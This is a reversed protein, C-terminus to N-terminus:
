AGTMNTNPPASSAENESLAAIIALGIPTGRGWDGPPGMAWLLPKGAAVNALVGILTHADGLVRSDRHYKDADSDDLEDRLGAVQEACDRLARALQQHEM